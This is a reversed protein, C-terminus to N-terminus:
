PVVTISPPNYTKYNSNTITATGTGATKAKVYFQVQSADAPVTVSTVVAGGVRFEINANPALAFTTAAAVRRVSGLDPSLTRLTVLVSDGVAVNGTPWSLIGDVRGSDVVTYATDPNHFPSSATAVLSDTGRVAGTLRVYAYYLGSPVTVSGLTTARATGIHTLTVPLPAAQNDSTHVYYSGDYNSDIYQGLGLTVSGWSFQVNPHIVSINHAGQNYAHIASRTPPCAGGVGTCDFATLQASGVAQPLVRGAQTYYNGAVITVKSSDTTFIAGSSSALGVVVNETVYHANGQDDTAYVTITQPGATTRPNATTSIVFKPQTVTVTVPTAPPGFGSASATIQITGVTDQATITFYAYYSGAPITVTAPVTAVVPASSTLTVTVPSAVNNQTYIYYDNAHGRQRMGYRATTGNFFLSPGTVTVTNSTSSQYGSGASDSFTLSATGPGVYQIQPQVYYAGPLIRAYQNVPRIVTTDSSVIRVVVTDMAYHANNTSDTAYITVTGNPSTTTANSPVGGGYYLRPTTVRVFATDPLYGPASVIITDTGVAKGHPQVYAYYLGAVISDVPVRLSDVGANKQTFTIPLSTVRNDPVHVYLDTPYRYQRRGLLQTHWSFQIKPTIITYLVSDPRHGPAEAVLYATGVGTPRVRATNHYYLGTAITAVASDVEIVATNTSRLSVALPTARNHAAHPHTSDSSYLTFGSPPSFNNRTGGGSIGVRPSTVIYTATDPQYGPASVIFQVAGTDVATVTFYFYYSGAPVTGNATITAKAPNSSTFTLPLPNVVNNPTHAYNNDDYQGAGIRNTTFSFQLKPGVVTVLMSDPRHGGATVKVWATGGSGGPQYRVTNVYYAGAGISPSTDVIKIVSTDSSSVSLALSSNRYHANGISDTAYITMTTQPSTTNFSTQGTVVVRPTTVKMFITDPRWGGATATVIVMATGPAKGFMTFYSYYSGGPITSSPTVTVVNTDSSTFTVPISFNTNVQSYVYHDPTFQGAGVMVNTASFTLNPAYVNLTSATGNVGTAVPTITTSGNTSGMATIVINSALQGAPIFAPEPSIQARGATGYTFTVFTGGAPSPDSLLVQANVQDTANLSWGGTNFSMNAQVAVGATDGKYGNGSTELAYIQTTGANRGNLTVNQSTQGPTFTISGVSFFANTDRAALSVVVNTGNPRSLFIPISKAAGRGVTLTDLGFSIIPPVTTSVVIVAANSNIAGSTATVNATGLSQGTVVGTTANVTAVPTNDSAFTFAGGTIYRNNADKGRATLQVTGTVGITDPTPTLEISSLLQQVKLPASGTIGDAMAHITTNGNANSLATARSPQITDLLAVSGNSSTWAFTVGSMPADLTDRAEARMARRIGLSPLATTDSVPVGSSDRGVIIRTIPTLVNVAAVGTIGNATARVQTGGLSVGTVLGNADTSAVTPALTSWVFSTVAPMVNGRGDVAAASFQFTRTRYINRTGPTVNITAVRQQVVVRTSDKTGGAETVVVYTAGDAVATVLGSGNVTAVATNRSVWTYSGAVVAETADRSTAVKTVQEGHSYLSDLHTNLTTSIIAGGTINFAASTVMPLSSTAQLTYGIGTNNISLGPFTAVGAVAAVTLTGALSGDGPNTSIGVTVNGTFTTAVLGGADKATLQIAPSFPAGAATTTPQQTFVLQTAPGAVTTTTATASVALPNPTLGSGSVNLTQPGATGGITWNTQATGGATTVASTPNATGNTAAPTFSVTVGAIGNGFNDSVKVVIPAALTAGGAASQGGGSMLILTTAAGASVSFAPGSTGTLGTGSAALTYTGAKTLQLDSFTAVGAVANVTVPGTFAVHAMSDAVAIADSALSAAPGVPTLTVPGTFTTVTNNLADRVAVTIPDLTTGAGVGATPYNQFVLRNAAGATIVVSNSTASALSSNSAVLTYTGPVNLALTSFTAVGAVANVTTTGALTGGAPAGAGLALTVPGTFATTVANTADVAQVTIAPALTAGATATAPPQQAFVLRVPDISRATASFTVPSGTLGAATATLTQTGATGGLRWTTSAQGNAGTVVSASGVTGGNQAAFTVTVGPAPQGDTANVQVVVPNTLQANVNATQGGGSVSAISSPPAVITLVADDQQNTLLRAFIRTTGRAAGATGFGTFGNITAVAPTEVVFVIPTNPVVTGGADVAVAGFSFSGGTNVTLTKPAIRVATATAGPGVYRPVVVVPPPPASGPTAPVVPAQVGSASWVVDGADNLYNLNGTLTVGTAPVSAPLLIDLSLPIENVGAPFSITTDKAVSGDPFRLVIRVRSFDTVDGNTQNALALAEAYQAYVGPFETQFALGHAYRVGGSDPGTPERGCSMVATALAASVFLAKRISRSGATM